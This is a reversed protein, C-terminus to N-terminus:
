GGGISVVRGTMGEKMLQLQQLLWGEPKVAGVPLEMYAKAVLPLRNQLHPKETESAQQSCSAVLMFLMLPFIRTKMDGFNDVTKKM